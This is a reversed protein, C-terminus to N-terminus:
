PQYRTITTTLPTDIDASWDAAATPIAGRDAAPSGFQTIRRGTLTSFGAQRPDTNPIQGTISTGSAGLFSGDGWCQAEPPTTQDRYFWGTGIVGAPVDSTYTNKTLVQGQRGDVAEWSALATTVVDANGDITVGTTKTSSRYTMAKAAVSYDIFDMVGPIAHVRLNTVVDIRDRYMLHTRQTLPGSNAGVYSRIARVPGDINAVFAGEEAAFTVNSRGCYGIAFQNKQGDLIDVGSAGAAKVKWSEEKWRDTFGVEYAATTVKSTEPNPGIRRKYTTKYAGSTLAFRYDVYDKGAAPDLTGDTAFLYVWGSEGTGRPDDIRVAVGSRHVVGSPEGIVDPALQGGADSAMFVVEDDADLAPNTDVGIWTDPDAYQLGTPGGSGSGYVTGPVGATTNDTPNTGFAIVKRQDVQVPIQTWARGTSDSNENHRFAVVRDAATGALSPVRAGTLVVPTTPRNVLSVVRCSTLASGCLAAVAGAAAVRGTWKGQLQM